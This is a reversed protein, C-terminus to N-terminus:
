NGAVMMSDIRLTPADTGYKFELDSAAQMHRYMDKLNGAVTVENVPYTIQGNEIWFGSAGRSYDGTIGNVGMGILETVYFGSAIDAVLEEPSLKGPAIYINTSSPAPPSSTGRSARGNSKLGLQRASGSDLLWNKLIGNEVLVLKDNAVGEGDFPRSSPGRVIHPDDIITIHEPFIRDEMRDKLFSTGRAISQGNIAGAFHGLLTKSVRPDYVVPVQATAAKRPNLRRLAREAAERAIEAPSDLDALHHKSSFAYDREMATGTGAIVSLSLSFSSRRYSQAFGDSNCLAIEVKDYGAGAGQSNTIGETALALAETERAMDQLTEASPTATDYLDLKEFPPKALLTPDALGAFRDQPAHRAMSIAREVLPDMNQTSLDSSSVIAQKQGIFVRLGLDVNESREIDELKGLRWSVSESRSTFFIADAQDAGARLAKKILDELRNLHDATSPIAIQSM